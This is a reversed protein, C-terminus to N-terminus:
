TPTMLGQEISDEDPTDNSPPSVNKFAKTLLPSNKAAVNEAITFCLM